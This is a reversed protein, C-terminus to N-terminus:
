YTNHHKPFACQHVHTSVAVGARSARQACHQKVHILVAHIALCPVALLLAFPLEALAKMTATRSLRVAKFPKRDHLLRFYGNCLADSATEYTVEFDVTTVDCPCRQLREHDMYAICDGSSLLVHRPLLHHQLGLSACRRVGQRRVAWCQRMGLSAPRLKWTFTAGGSINAVAKCIKHLCLQRSDPRAAGAMCRGCNTRNPSLRVCCLKSSPVSAAGPSAVFAVYTTSLVVCVGDEPTIM